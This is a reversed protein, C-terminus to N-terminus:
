DSDRLRSLEARTLTRKQGDIFATVQEADYQANYESETIQVYGAKRATEDSGVFTNLTGPYVWIMKEEM